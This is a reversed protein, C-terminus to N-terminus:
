EGGDIPCLAGDHEECDSDNEVLGCRPCCVCSCLGDRPNAYDPGRLREEMLSELPANRM